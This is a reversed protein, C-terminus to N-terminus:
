FLENRLLGADMEASPPPFETEDVATEADTLSTDYDVSALESEDQLAELAQESMEIDDNQRKRLYTSHHQFLYRLWVRVKSPDAIMYKMTSSKHRREIVVFRDHLDNRPLIKCWIKEPNHLLNLCEQRYKRCAVFNRRITVVPQVLAILSQEAPKLTSLHEV